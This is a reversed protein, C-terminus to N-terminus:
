LVMKSIEDGDQFLGNHNYFFDRIKHQDFFTLKGKNLSGWKKNASKINNLVNPKGKMSKKSLVLNRPALNVYEPYKPKVKLSKRGDKEESRL